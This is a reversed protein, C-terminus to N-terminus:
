SVATRVVVPQQTESHAATLERSVFAAAIREIAYQHDDSFTESSTSYASLAGLITGNHKLPAVLASRLPPDFMNARELLDLTAPSNAMVSDHAVAWGTTREGNKICLGTLMVHTDGASQVCILSDDESRYEFLACVKAPTLMALFQAAVETAERRSTSHKLAMACEEILTTQEANTRIQELPNMGSGGSLSPMFSRAQQGAQIALPSIEPFVRVFTEVVLPDYMRGAREHLIAFSDDDSMRPRYPRDSTLADFCDVVSLIRAGLPIDHGALGSPYGTGNWNEHHHRVIPVVPYPFSISSLLDAGIDAHRKMKEFEAATLKGPKNLIHEPIALKGMDHLLAAAEIARLQQEDTVGLRQALQTAYVQVRRIHGHTIQDKADVAMALAEITSLYLDNIHRVHRNADELRGMSNRFTFYSVLLIPVIIGLVAINLQAAYASIFMAICSGVFYNISVAPLNRRWMTIAASGRDTAMAAAILCSNFVFYVVALGFIPLVVHQLNSSTFQGPTAGSMFFFIDGATRIAIAPAAANFLLRGPTRRAAKQWFTIVLADLVVTLTGAASGFLLVSTFVFTESVSLDAPLSPLKITFCGALVTMAALILWDIGPPQAALEWVSRCIVLLGILIVAFLYASRIPRIGSSL